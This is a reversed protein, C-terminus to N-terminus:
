IIIIGRIVAKLYLLIVQLIFVIYETIITATVVGWIGMIGILYVSLVINIIVGALTTYISIKELRISNSLVGTFNNLFVGPIGFSLFKLIDISRLYKEGYIIQIIYTSFFYFLCLFFVSIILLMIVVSLINEKKIIGNRAYERSLITFEPILIAGSIMQPAKYIGYAIAYVAVSNLDLINQIIIIDVRDYILVFIGSIGLPLSLKIIRFLEFNGLSFNFLKLNKPSIIRFLLIGIIIQTILFVSLFLYKNPSFIFIFILVIALFLQPLAVTRLVIKYNERGYLIASFVNIFIYTYNMTIVLIVDTNVDLTFKFYIIAILFIPFSVLLLISILDSVVKTINAESAALRQIYVPFGFSFIVILINCFAFATRVIGYETTTISRALIVFLTFFVIKEIISAAFFYFSNKNIYKFL